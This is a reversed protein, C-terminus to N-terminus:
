GVQAEAPEEVELEPEIGLIDELEAIKKITDEKHSKADDVQTQSQEINKESETIYQSVGELGKRYADLTTELHAKINDEM